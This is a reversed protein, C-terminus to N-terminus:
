IYSRTVVRGTDKSLGTTQRYSMEFPMKPNYVTSGPPSLPNEPDELLLFGTQKPPFPIQQCSTSVCPDLVPPLWTQNWACRAVLEEYLGGDAAMFNGYPGCTYLVETGYQFDGDWEWTGVPAKVPPATCNV